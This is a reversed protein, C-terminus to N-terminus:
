NWKTHYITQIQNWSLEVWHVYVQEDNAYFIVAETFFFGVIYHM